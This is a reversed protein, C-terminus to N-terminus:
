RKRAAALFADVDEARTDFATVLRVLMSTAGEPLAWEWEYFRAGAEKLQAITSLPLRVFIENAEVPFALSTGALNGLGEALRQAMANAHGSLRLWLDDAVYALLQASIFRMKSLLHGAQKRRFEADRVLAPDFFVLAEAGMAGGKTAGFSLVDVGARWTVDAPKMKLAAMANGFRAGDMHLCLRHARAIDAIVAIEAPKYTTGCETAQTLTIATAQSRHVVGKPMTAIAAKLAVPDIKGMPGDVPVIKGGHAFISAAGCEDENVHSMRHCLMAGHSPTATALALCNAATGTIVPMVLVDRGFLDSFARQLKETWADAGYAGARGSAAEALAAMIEPAAGAANDSSFDLNPRSM